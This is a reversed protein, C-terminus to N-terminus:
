ETLTKAFILEPPDNLLSFSGVAKYGLKTYFHQATEDSATSTLLTNYGQEKMKEEWYAMAQTGYGKGRWPELFYLMNLFPIQDWFLGWRLWGIIEDGELFVYIQRRKIKEVLQEPSIHRDHLRLTALNNEAALRIRM